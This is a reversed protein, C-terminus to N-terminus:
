GFGIEGSTKQTTRSEAIKRYDQPLIMELADEAIRDITKSAMLSFENVKQKPIHPKFKNDYMKTGGTSPVIDSGDNKKGLTLLNYYTTYINKVTEKKTHDLVIRRLEFYESPKSLALELMNQKFGEHEIGLYDAPDIKFETTM